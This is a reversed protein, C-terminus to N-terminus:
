ISDLEWLKLKVLITNGLITVPHELFSLKKKIKSLKEPQELLTLVLFGIVMSGLDRIEM